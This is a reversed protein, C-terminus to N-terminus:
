VRKVGQLSLFIVERARGESSVSISRGAEVERVAWVYFELADRIVASGSRGLKGQLESLVGQARDDLVLQLKKGM